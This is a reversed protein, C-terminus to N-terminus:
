QLFSPAYGCGKLMGHVSMLRALDIVHHVDLKDMLRQKYTSVTKPSVSLQKGIDNLSKGGVLMIAVELERDSLVDMPSADGDLASFAVSEAIAPTLYRRGAAVRRIAGVLDAASCAKTLYGMAGADMLRRPFHAQDVVTVIVIRTALHALAVRETLELGSMGDMHVDVLAVDPKKKRILQLGADACGAEGVVTIDATEEIIKRFGVRVLDHDDVLVVNIM